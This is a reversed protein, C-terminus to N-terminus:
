YAIGNSVAAATKDRILPNTRKNIVSASAGSHEASRM